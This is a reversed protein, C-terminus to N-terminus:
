GLNWPLRTFNSSRVLCLRENVDYQCRRSGVIPSVWRSGTRAACVRRSVCGVGCGAAGGHARWEGGRVSFRGRVGADGLVGNSNRVWVDAAARIRDARFLVPSCPRTARRLHRRRITFPSRTSSAALRPCLAPIEARSSGDFRPNARSPTHDLSVRDAMQGFYAPSHNPCTLTDTYTKPAVCFLM